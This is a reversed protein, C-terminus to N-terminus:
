SRGTNLFQLRREVRFRLCFGAIAELEDTSTGLVLAPHEVIREVVPQTVYQQVITTTAAPGTALDSTLTNHFPDAASVPLRDSAAVIAAAPQSQPTAAVDVHHGGFISVFFLGIAAIISKLM